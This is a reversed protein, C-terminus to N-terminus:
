PQTGWGLKTRLKPFFSPGGLTVLRVAHASKRVAVRDRSVLPIGLQGDITAMAEQGATLSPLQIAVESDASVVLSRASLTHPCIPTIILVPVTPDVIPGGASLSYATSGTPTSVIVGDMALSALEKCDVWMKLKLLRSFAGKTIVLDNLGCVSHIEKGRRVIRTELMMREHAEFNGQLAKNLAEALEELRVETLFGLGGVHVGLVPVDHPAAMRAATLMTGDGGVAIILDAGEVLEEEQCSLQEIGLAEAEREAVRVELGRKELISTIQRVASLAKKREPTTLLAIRKL